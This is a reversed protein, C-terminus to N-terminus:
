GSINVRTNGIFRTDRHRRTFLAFNHHAARRHHGTIVFIRCSRGLGDAVAFKEGTINPIQIVVAVEPQDLPAIIDNDAPAFINVRSLHFGDQALM